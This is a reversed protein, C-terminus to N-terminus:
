KPKKALEQKEHRLALDYAVRHGKLAEEETAYREQYQDIHDEEGKPLDTQRFIM